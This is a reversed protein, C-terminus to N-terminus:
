RTVQTIPLWVQFLTNGPKSRVQITGQHKKV